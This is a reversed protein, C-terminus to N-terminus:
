DEEKVQKINELLENVKNMSIIKIEIFKTEAMLAAGGGLEKRSYLRNIANEALWEMAKIGKQRELHMHPNEKYEMNSIIGKKM